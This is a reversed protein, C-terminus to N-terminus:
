NQRANEAKALSQPDKLNDDDQFPNSEPLDNCLYDFLSHGDVCNQSISDDEREETNIYLNHYSTKNRVSEIGIKLRFIPYHGLKDQGTNSNVSLTLIVRRAAQV